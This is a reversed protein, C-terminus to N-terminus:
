RVNLSENTKTALHTALLPDSNEVCRRVVEALAAPATLYGFHGQGPLSVRHLGPLVAHLSNERDAQLVPSDEGILLWVPGLIGDLDGKRWVLSDLFETEDPFADVTQVIRAWLPSGIFAAIDSEPLGIVVELILRATVEPDGLALSRRIEPLHGASVPGDISYRPEYVIVPGPFRDRAAYSLVCGGGFSHGLLAADPGAIAAIAALDDVEADIAFHTQVRPSRGRGRRDYLYVTNTKALERAFPLWDDAAAFSGHCVVLPRGSGLRRYGITTGDFSQVAGTAPAGGESPHDTTLVILSRQRWIISASEDRVVTLVIVDRLM